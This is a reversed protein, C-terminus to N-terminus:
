SISLTPSIELACFFNNFDEFKCSNLINSTLPNARKFFSFLQKTNSNSLHPLFDECSTCIGHNNHTQRLTVPFPLFTAQIERFLVKVFFFFM